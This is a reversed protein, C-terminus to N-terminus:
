VNKINNSIELYEIIINSVDPIIHKTLISSIKTIFNLRATASIMNFDSFLPDDEKIDCFQLDLIKSKSFHRFLELRREPTSLIINSLKLRWGSWLTMFSLCEYNDVDSIHLSPIKWSSIEPVNEIIGYTNHLCMHYGNWEKLHCYSKNLLQCSDFHLMHGNWESLYEIAKSSIICDIFELSKSKFKSLCKGFYAPVDMNCFGLSKANGQSIIEIEKDSLDMEYFCLRQNLKSLNINDKIKCEVFKIYKVNIMRKICDIHDNILNVKCFTISANTYNKILYECDDNKLYINIIASNYECANIIHQHVM